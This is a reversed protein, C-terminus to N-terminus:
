CCTLDDAAALSILLMLLLLQEAGVLVSESVAPM